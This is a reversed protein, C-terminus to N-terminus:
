SCMLASEKTIGCVSKCFQCCLNFGTKNGHSLIISKGSSGQVACQSSGGSQNVFEFRSAPRGAGGSRKCEGYSFSQAGEKRIFVSKCFYVDSCRKIEMGLFLSLPCVKIDMETALHHLLQSIRQKSTSAVLGDDIYVALILKEEDNGRSSFVCPDAENAHLNFKKLCQQFKKNWCRAAQKLGYFAKQLKCARGTQDEQGEPQTMYIDQLEGNLFATKVDFQTMHMGAAAAIAFIARISEFRAM